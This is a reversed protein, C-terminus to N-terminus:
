QKVNSYLIVSGNEFLEKQKYVLILNKNANLDNEYAHNTLVMVNGAKKIFKNLSSSDPMVEVPSKFYWVFAPNFNKYAVVNLSDSATQLNFKEIAAKVSNSNVLDPLFFTHLSINFLYWSTFITYAVYWKIRNIYFHLAVFASVPLLFLGLIKFWHFNL